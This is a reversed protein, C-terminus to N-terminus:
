PVPPWGPPSRGLLTSINGVSQQGRHSGLDHWDVNTGAAGAQAPSQRGRVGLWTGTVDVTVLTSQIWDPKACGSGLVLVTCSPCNALHNSGNRSRGGRKGHRTPRSIVSSQNAWPLLSKPSRVAVFPATDIWTNVLLRKCQPNHSGLARIASAAADREAAGWCVMEARQGTNLTLPEDRGAASPKVYTFSNGM